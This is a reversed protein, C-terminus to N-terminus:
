DPDPESRPAHEGPTNRPHLHKGPMPVEELWARPQLGQFFVRLETRLTFRGVVDPRVVNYYGQLSLTAAVRGRTWTKAVGGGLPVTWGTGPPGDIVGDVISDTVVAWGRGLNYAAFNQQVFRQGDTSFSFEHGVVMGAVWPGKSYVGLAAPGLSWGGTGLAPDTATKFGKAIGAGFTWPGKQPPVIWTTMKLDGFGDAQGESSTVDPVRSIPLSWRTVVLWRKIPFPLIPRLTLQNSVRKSDEHFFSTDNQIPLAVINALPNQALKAASEPTLPARPLRPPRSDPGVPATADAHSEISGVIAIGLLLGALVARM